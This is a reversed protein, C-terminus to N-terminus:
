ARSCSSGRGRRTGQPKPTSKVVMPCNCCDYLLTCKDKCEEHSTTAICCRYRITIAVHRGHHPGLAVHHEYHSPSYFDPNLTPQQSPIKRLQLFRNRHIRHPKTLPTFDLTLLHNPIPVFMQIPFPCAFELLIIYRHTTPRIHECRSCAPSARLTNSMRIQM